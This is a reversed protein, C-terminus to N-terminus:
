DVEALRRICTRLIAIQDEQPDREFKEYYEIYAPSTEITEIEGHLLANRLNLLIKIRQEIEVINNAFCTVSKINSDCVHRQKGFLADIAIANHLFSLRGPRQWGAGIFQLGVELRRQVEEDRSTCEFFKVLANIDREDIRYDRILSPFCPGGIRAEWLGGLCFNYPITEAMSFVRAHPHPLIMSIAGLLCELLNEGEQDSRALCGIWSDSESLPVEAKDRHFPPVQLGNLRETPISLESLVDPLRGSPRLFVVREGVYDDSFSLGKAPIFYLKPQTIQYLYTELAEALKSRDLHSFENAAVVGSQSAVMLADADFLDLHTEFFDLLTSRISSITAGKLLEKQYGFLTIAAWQLAEENLYFNYVRPGFPMLLNDRNGFFSLRSDTPDTLRFRIARLLYEITELM